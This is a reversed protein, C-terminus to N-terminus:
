FLLQHFYQFQHNFHLACARCAFFDNILVQYVICVDCVLVWLRSGGHTYLQRVPVSTSQRGASVNIGISQGDPSASLSPLYGETGKMVMAM